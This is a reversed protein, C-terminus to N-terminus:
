DEECVNSGLHHDHGPGGYCEDEGFTHGDLTLHENHEDTSRDQNHEMMGMPMGSPGRHPHAHKASAQHHAGDGHRGHTGYEGDKGMSVKGKHKKAM